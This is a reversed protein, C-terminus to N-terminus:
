QYLTSVLHRRDCFSFAAPTFQDPFAPVHAAGREGCALVRLSSLNFSLDILQVRGTLDTVQRAITEAVVLDHRQEAGAAEITCDAGFQPQGAPGKTNSQM